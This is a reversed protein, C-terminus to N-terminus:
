WAQRWTGSGCHDPQSPEPWSMAKARVETLLIAAPDGAVFQMNAQQERNRIAGELIYRDILECATIPFQMAIQTAYLSDALTDFHSAILVRHPSPLSHCQLRIETAFFLTGESGAILAALNWPTGQPDFPQQELLSDLAYGTNRRTVTRKSLSGIDSGSSKTRSPTRDHWGRNSKRFENCADCTPM